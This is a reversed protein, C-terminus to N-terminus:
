EAALHRRTADVDRGIQTILADISDYREQGRLREVLEIRLPTGYLDPGAYDLLHAEVRLEAVDGFHPNRGVSIAAPHRQEGPAVVAWGAYVGDAPLQQGPVLSLNATPFGLERGRQDGPVVAGELSPNRGLLRAAAAVDGDGILSRIRSSSIKEGGEDVLRVVDLEIDREACFARLADVDGTRDHGFRFDEGVAVAVAGLREALIEEMFRRAPLEAIQRTFRLLVVEIAGADMLYRVRQTVGALTNPPVDPRLVTVPRPTFTAACPIADLRAGADVAARIVARHGLHVGDFTGLAIARRGPPVEGLGQYLDRKVSM